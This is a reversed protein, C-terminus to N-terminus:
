ALLSQVLQSVSKGDARHAVLPKLAAMVKGMEKKSSAGVAAITERVLAELADASLPEPLYRKFLAMEAEEKAALEPRGGRVYLAAADQRQKIAKELCAFVADETMEKGANVTADKIQAHLSRLATLAAADKTKMATKIDSLISDILM